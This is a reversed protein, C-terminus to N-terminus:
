EGIQVQKSKKNPPSTGHAVYLIVKDLKAKKACADTQWMSINYDSAFKPGYRILLIV